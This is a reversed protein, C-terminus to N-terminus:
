IDFLKDSKNKIKEFENMINEIILRVNNVNANKIKSIKQLDETILKSDYKYLLSCLREFLDFKENIMRDISWGYLYLTNVIVETRVILARINKLLNKKSKIFSIEEIYKSYLNRLNLFNNEFQSQIRRESVKNEKTNWIFMNNFSFINKKLGTDAAKFEELKHIHTRVEIWLKKYKEELNPISEIRYIEELLNDIINESTGNNMSYVGIDSKINLLKDSKINFLKDSKEKMNKIEKVINETILKLNDNNKFKKLNDILTKSDREYLLRCCYRNFLDFKENNMREISWGYLYLMNVLVETRVILSNIHKLFPKKTKMMEQIYESYLNRLILFNNEFPSKIKRESVKNHKTNWIFMNNFVFRGKRLGTDVEKLMDLKYILNDAEKWLKRYEVGSNPIKGVIFIKDLLNDIINGDVTEM